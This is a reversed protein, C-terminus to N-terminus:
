DLRALLTLHSAFRGSPSKTKSENIDLEFSRIAERYIWLAREADAHTNAGIWIDDVHRILSCDIGSALTRFQRDIATGVVEAFVRSSDPGVPLGITQGDQGCRVIQDAKNFFVTRSTPETDAKSETKGHFAWPLSHTYISHFYRAIDTCAVFRYRSLKKLKETELSTHSNIVLARDADAKIEPVSFSDANTAYFGTIQPWQGDIFHATDHATVPHVASFVRRTMGRKSANYTAARVPHRSKSLYGPPPNKEFYDAIGATSFGPPLNEPLYGRRLLDDKLGM